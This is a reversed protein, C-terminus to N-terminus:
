HVSQYLETQPPCILWVARQKSKAIMTLLCKNPQKAVLALAVVIGIGLGM